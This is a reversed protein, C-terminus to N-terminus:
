TLCNFGRRPRQLEDTRVAVTDAAADAAAAQTQTVAIKVALNADGETVFGLTSDQRQALGIQM